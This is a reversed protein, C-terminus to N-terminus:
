RKNADDILVEIATFKNTFADKLNNNELTIPAFKDDTLKPDENDFNSNINIDTENSTIEDKISETDYNAPFILTSENGIPIETTGVGKSVDEIFQKSKASSENQIDELSTHVDTKENLSNSM